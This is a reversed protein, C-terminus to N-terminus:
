HHLLIVIAITAGTALAYILISAYAQARPTQPISATNGIKRTIKAPASAITAVIHQDTWAIVRALARIANAGASIAADIIYTDIAAILLSFGVATAAFVM